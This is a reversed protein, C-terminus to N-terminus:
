EYKALREKLKKKANFLRSKVTGESVNVAKAIESIPMDEMYFMIVVTRLKEPLLMVERRVADRQEKEIAMDEATEDDSAAELDDDLSVTEAIRSRWLLKRRRNSHLNAAISLLYSKPNMGTDMDDKEIVTLFTQQYLDDALDKNGTLYVCFSYIDKGHDTILQEIQEVVSGNGSDGIGTNM